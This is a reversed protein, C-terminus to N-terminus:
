ATEDLRQEITALHYELFNLTIDLKAELSKMESAQLGEFLVLLREKSHELFIREDESKSADCPMEEKVAEKEVEQTQIQEAIQAENAAVAARIEEEIRAEQEKLLLEAKRTDEAIKEDLEDLTSLILEKLEM